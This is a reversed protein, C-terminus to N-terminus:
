TKKSVTKRGSRGLGRAKASESRRASINAAVMPYDAPLGWKAKYKEPTLGRATLHGRLIQYSKGDEFSILAAPTISRRIQAV